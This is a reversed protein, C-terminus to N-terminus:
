SRPPPTPARSILPRDEDSQFRESYRGADFINLGRVYRLELTVLTLATACASLALHGLGAAMGIGSVSFVTAATTVGHVTDDRGKLILGGGIFGVGTVIGALAQPSMQGAVAAVVAAGTGILSFTRDGAPSGRLEREFGVAFALGFGVLIRYLLDVDGHSM